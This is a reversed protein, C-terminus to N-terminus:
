RSALRRLTQDAHYTMSVITRLPNLEHQRDQSAGISPNFAAGTLGISPSRPFIADSARYAVRRRGGAAARRARASEEQACPRGRGAPARAISRVANAVRPLDRGPTRDRSRVGGRGFVPRAFHRPRPRGRGVADASRARGYGGLGQTLAEVLLGLAYGKHGHDVGGIPLISGGAHTVSPDDTEVGDKDMVWRGPLRGGAAITWGCM